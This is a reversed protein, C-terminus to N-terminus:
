RSIMLFAIKEIPNETLQSSISSDRRDSSIDYLM